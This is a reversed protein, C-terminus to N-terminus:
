KQSVLKKSIIYLSSLTEGILELITVIVAVLERIYVM